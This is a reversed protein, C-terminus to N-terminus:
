GAAKPVAAHAARLIAAFGTCRCINGTLVDDIQAATPEPAVDLLGRVSAVFGPTCYGCQVAGEDLFAKQVADLEDTDGLAEVTRVSRGGLTAALLCCSHAVKGDVLVTCAGCYGIGCGFKAGTLGLEDRLVDLLTAGPSCDIARAEGNVDLEFSLHEAATM